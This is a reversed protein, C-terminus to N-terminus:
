YHELPRAITNAVTRLLATHSHSVKLHCGECSCNCIAPCDCAGNTCPCSRCAECFPCKCQCERSHAAQLSCTCLWSNRGNTYSVKVQNASIGIQAGIFREWDRARTEDFGRGEDDRRLEQPLALQREGQFATTRMALVFWEAGDVHRDVHSAVPDANSYGPFSWIIPQVIPLALANATPSRLQQLLSDHWQHVAPHQAHSRWLRLAEVPHLFTQQDWLMAMAIHGRGSKRLIETLKTLSEQSRVMRELSTSLLLVNGSMADLKKGVLRVYSSNYASVHDGELLQVDVSAPVFLRLFAQQRVLSTSIGGEEFQKTDPSIRPCILISNIRHIECALGVLTRIVAVQPPQVDRNSSAELLRTMALICRSYYVSQLARERGASPNAKM